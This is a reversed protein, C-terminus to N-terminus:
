KLATGHVSLSEIVERVMRETICQKRKEDTCLLQIAYLAGYRGITVQGGGSTRQYDGDFFQQVVMKNNGTVFTQNSGDILITFTEGEVVASYGRSDSIIKADSLTQLEPSTDSLVVSTPPLLLPVPTVLTSYNNRQTTTRATSNSIADAKARDWDIQITQQDITRSKVDDLDANEAANSVACASLMSSVLLVLLPSKMRRTNATGVIM